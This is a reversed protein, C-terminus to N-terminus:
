KNKKQLLIKNIKSDLDKHLAEKLDKMKIGLAEGILIAKELTVEYKGNEIYHIGVHSIGIKDAVDRLGLGKENRVRFFLERIFYDPEARIAEAM